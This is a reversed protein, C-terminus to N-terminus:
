FLKKYKDFLNFYIKMNELENWDCINAPNHDINYVVANELSLLFPSHTAIIFQCGFLYAYDRVMTALRMQFKPDMSNEPEDLLYLNDPELMNEFYRLATEGNSFQEEKTYFDRMEKQVDTSNSLLFREKPTMEEPNFFRELLSHNEAPNDSPEDSFYPLLYEKGKVKNDIILSEKRLEVIGEMIDESKIVRSESPIELQEGRCNTATLFSCKKVCADFYLSSNNGLSKHSIGIKEAIVNLITSKGSGNSGYIITIPSFSMFELSSKKFITYPYPGDRLPFKISELYVM